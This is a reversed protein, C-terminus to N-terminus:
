RSAARCYVGGCRCLHVGYTDVRKPHFKPLRNGQDEPGERCEVATHRRGCHTCEHTM